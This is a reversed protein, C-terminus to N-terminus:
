SRGGPRGSGGKDPGQVVPRLMAAAPAVLLGDRDLQAELRWRGAAKRQRRRGPKGPGEFVHPRAHSM